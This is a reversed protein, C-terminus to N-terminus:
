HGHERIHQRADVLHAAGLANQVVNNHLEGVLTFLHLRPHHTQDFSDLVILDHTLRKREVVRQLAHERPVVLEQVSQLHAVSPAATVRPRLLSRLRLCSWLMLLGTRLRYCVIADDRLKGLQRRRQLRAPSLHMGRRRRASRHRCRSRSRRSSRGGSHRRRVRLIGLRARAAAAPAAVADPATADAVKLLARRHQCGDGSRGLRRWCRCLLGCRELQGCVAALVPLRWSLRVHM